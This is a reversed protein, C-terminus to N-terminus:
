QEIARARDNCPEPRCHVSAGSAARREIRLAGRGRLNWRSGVPQVFRGDVLTTAILLLSFPCSPLLSFFLLTRGAETPTAPEYANPTPSWEGTTRRRVSAFPEKATGNPPMSLGWELVGYMRVRKTAMLATAV